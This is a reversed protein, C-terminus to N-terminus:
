RQHDPADISEQLLEEVLPTGNRITLRKQLLERLVRVGRRDLYSVQGIDLVVHTGRDLLDLCEQELVDAWDSVIRGEVTLVIDDTGHSTQTLRLM